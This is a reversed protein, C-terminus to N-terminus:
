TSKFPVVEFTIPEERYNEESGFAVKLTISGLSKAQRGPVVGYFTVASHRLQTKTLGLKTLTEVYMINLSSGGDMLCKSFEYGQIVPCVVMAYYGDPIHEPHDDRSWHVPVESWRVYQRVKPVTANLSRMTARQAKATPPGLFTHFAGNKNTNKFPNGTGAGGETKEAPRPAPEEDMDSGDKSEKDKDAKGKARPWQRRNRKYGAEQDAKIDNVFKCNRNTHNCKGSADRHAFCPMDHYEDYSVPASPALAPAASSQYTELTDIIKSAGHKNKCWKGITKNCKKASKHM